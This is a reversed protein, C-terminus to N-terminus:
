AWKEQMAAFDGPAMTLYPTEAKAALIDADYSLVYDCNTTAASAMILFDSSRVARNRLELLRKVADSDFFLAISPSSRSNTLWGSGNRKHSM